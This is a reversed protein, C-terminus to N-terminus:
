GQLLPELRGWCDEDKVVRAESLANDPNTAAVPANCTFAGGNNFFLVVFSSEPKPFDAPDSATGTCDAGGNSTLSQWLLLANGGEVPETRWRKTLREAGSEVDGSGDAKFRWTESCVPKGKRTTARTSFRWSGVEVLRAATTKATLETAQALSPTAPACVLAGAAIMLSGTGRM